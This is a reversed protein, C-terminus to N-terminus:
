DTLQLEKEESLKATPRLKHFSKEAEERSTLGGVSREFRYPTKETCYQKVNPYQVINYENKEIWDDERGDINKLEDNIGEFLKKNFM